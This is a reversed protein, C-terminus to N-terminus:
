KIIDSAMQRILSCVGVICTPSLMFALTKGRVYTLPSNRIRLGNRNRLLYACLALGGMGMLFYTLIESVVSAPIIDLAIATSYLVVIFNNCFHLIISSWISGTIVYVFGLAVGAIVAFPVQTFNGHMLGFLFASIGIAFGDGYKRLTGLVVGRLAFEEMLAPLVASRVCSFVFEAFTGPADSYDLADHYSYFDVGMMGFYSMLISNIFNGFFCVGIGAVILLATDFKKYPKGFNIEPDEYTFLKLFRHVLLFPLGLAVFSYLMEYFQAFMPSALYRDHLVDFEVLARRFLVSFLVYGCIGSCLVASVVTVRKRVNKDFTRKANKKDRVNMDDKNMGNSNVGDRDNLSMRFVEKRAGNM